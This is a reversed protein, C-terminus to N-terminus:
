IAMLIGMPSLKFVLLALRTVNYLSPLRGEKIMIGRSIRSVPQISLM